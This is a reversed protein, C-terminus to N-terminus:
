YNKLRIALLHEALAWDEETDIDLVKTRPIKIGGTKGHFVSDYREWARKTGWYFQGADHYYNKLDQTRINTKRSDVMEIVDNQGISLRRELPHGYSLIPLCFDLEKSLLLTEAKAIDSPHVLFATPYICCILSGIKTEAELMEIAHRVVPTTPTHDDALNKPRLWPVSAGEMKATHAIEDDDTSVIVEDFCLSKQAIDIVWAIAPRGAILRVNKRPIRKSGGRAPIIAIRKM